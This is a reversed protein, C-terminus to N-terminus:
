QRGAGAQRASEHFGQVPAISTVQPSQPAPSLCRRRMARVLAPSFHRPFVARLDLAPFRQEGRREPQANRLMIDVVRAAEDVTRTQHRQEAVDGGLQTDTKVAVLAQQAGILAHFEQGRDMGPVIKLDGCVQQADAAGGALHAKRYVTDNPQGTFTSRGRVGDDEIRGREQGFATIRTPVRSAIFNIFIRHLIIWVRRRHVVADVAISKAPVRSDSFVVVLEGTKAQGTVSLSIEGASGPCFPHM